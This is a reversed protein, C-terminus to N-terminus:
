PINKIDVKLLNCLAFTKSHGFSTKSKCFQFKQVFQEVKCTAIALILLCKLVIILPLLVVALSLFSFWIFRLNNTINSTRVNWYFIPHKFVFLHMQELGKLPWLIINLYAQHTIENMFIYIYICVYHHTGLGHHLTQTRNSISSCMQTHEINSFHHELQNKLETM